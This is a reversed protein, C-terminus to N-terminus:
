QKVLKATDKPDSDHQFIVRLPNFYYWEITKMVGDQLISLYLNQTMKGEIKCMCGMDCSTMWGWMFIVGGGHKIIQSVHHAQLQSKGDKV